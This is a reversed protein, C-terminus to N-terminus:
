VQKNNHNNTKTKKINNKLPMLLILVHSSYGQIIYVGRLSNQSPNWTMLDKVARSGVLECAVEPVAISKELKKLRLATRSKACVPSLWLLRSGTVLRACNGRSGSRPCILSICHWCFGPALQFFPPVLHSHWFLATIEFSFCPWVKCCYIFECCCDQIFSSICILSGQVIIVTHSFFFTTSLNVVNIVEVPQITLELM